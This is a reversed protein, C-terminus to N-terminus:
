KLFLDAYKIFQIWDYLEIGHGGKRMHYGITGFSPREVSPFKSILLGKTKLLKFVPDAFKASLFEGYSDTIYSDQGSAIYVPRPAILAILMHQDFPLLTDQEYYKQFNKCFWYPFRKCLNKTDEGGLHHFLKAGGAGSENSITIAFRQDTAGAWLAAKGMRSTGMVVVKKSDILPDKEFYDMVRSLGLAWAAITGFNDGRKQMDPFIEQVGSKYGDLYDPAVDGAFVTALAYGNELITQIPWDASAIGRTSDTARNNVVGKIKPLVWSKTMIIDKDATISQNGAFNYGIFVPAAKKLKQPYYILLDMFHGGNKGDFYIRIQKRMALGGLLDRKTELTVFSLTPFTKPSQGFVQEKYFKLIEPRRQTTWQQATKVIKGSNLKLVDPLIGSITDQSFAFSNSCVLFLLIVSKITYTKKQNHLYMNAM